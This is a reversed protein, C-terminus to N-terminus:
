RRRTEFISWNELVRSITCVMSLSKRRHVTQLTKRHSRVHTYKLMKEFIVFLNFRRREDDCDRDREKRNRHCYFFTLFRTSTPYQLSPHILLLDSLTLIDVISSLELDFHFFSLSFQCFSLWSYTFILLINATPSEHIILRLCLRWM